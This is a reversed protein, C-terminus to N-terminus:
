WESMNFKTASVSSAWSSYWMAGAEPSESVSWVVIDDLSGSGAVTSFLRSALFESRSDISSSLSASALVDSSKVSSALIKSSLPFDWPHQMTNESSLGHYGNALSFSNASALHNILEPTGFDLISSYKLKLSAPDGSSPM